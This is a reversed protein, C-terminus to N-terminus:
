PPVMVMVYSGGIDHSKRSTLSKELRGMYNVQLGLLREKWKGRKRSYMGPVSKRGSLMSMGDLVTINDRVDHVAIYGGKEHKNGHRVRNGSGNAHM